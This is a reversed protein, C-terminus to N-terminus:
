FYEYKELLLDSWFTFSLMPDNGMGVSGITHYDWNKKKQFLQPIINHKDLAGKIILVM